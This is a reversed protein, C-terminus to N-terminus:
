RSRPKELVHYWRPFLFIPFYYEEYTSYLNYIQPLFGKTRYLISAGRSGIFHVSKDGVRIGSFGNDKSFAESVKKFARIDKETIPIKKYYNQAEDAFGYYMSLEEGYADFGIYVLDINDDKEEEYVKYLRKALYKFDNYYSDFDHVAYLGFDRARCGTIFNMTGIVFSYLILVAIVTTIIYAKKEKVLRITNLLAKAEDHIVSKLASKM